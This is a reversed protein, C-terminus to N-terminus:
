WMPGLSEGLFTQPGCTAIVAIAVELVTSAGLFPLAPLFSPTPLGGAMNAAYQPRGDTWGVEM